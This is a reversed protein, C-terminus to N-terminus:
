PMFVSMAFLIGLTGSFDGTYHYGVQGVDAGPIYVVEKGMVSNSGVDLRGVLDKLPSPFKVKKGHQRFMAELKRRNEDVVRECRTEEVTPGKLYPHRGMAAVQLKSEARFYKDYMDRFERRIQELFANVEYKKSPYSGNELKEKM